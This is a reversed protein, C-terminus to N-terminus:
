VRWFKKSDNNHLVPAFPRLAKRLLQLQCRAWVLAAAEVATGRCSHRETSCSNLLAAESSLGRESCDVSFFFSLSSLVSVLVSPSTYILAVLNPSNEGMPRTNVKPLKEFILFIDL